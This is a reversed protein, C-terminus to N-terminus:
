TFRRKFYDVIRAWLSLKTIRRARRAERKDWEEASWLRPLPRQYIVAHKM